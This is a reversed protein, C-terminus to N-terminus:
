SSDFVIGSPITVAEKAEIGNTTFHSRGTCIAQPYNGVLLVRLQMNFESQLLDLLANVTERHTVKTDGEMQGLIELLLRREKYYTLISYFAILVFLGISGLLFLLFIRPFFAAEFSSMMLFMLVFLVTSILLAIIELKPYSSRTRWARDIEEKPWPLRGRLKIIATRILAPMFLSMIGLAAYESPIDSDTIEGFDTVGQAKQDYHSILMTLSKRTLGCFRTSKRTKLYNYTGFLLLPFGIIMCGIPLVLIFTLLEFETFMFYMLVGMLVLLGGLVMFLMVKSTEEYAERDRNAVKRAFESHGRRELGERWDESILPKTDPESYGEESPAMIPTVQNQLVGDECTAGIFKLGREVIEYTKLRESALTRDSTSLVAALSLVIIAIGGWILYSPVLRLTSGAIIGLLSLLSLSFIARDRNVRARFEKNSLLFSNYQSVSPSAFRGKDYRSTQQHILGSIIPLMIVAVFLFVGVFIRMMFFAVTLFASIVSIILFAVIVNRNRKELKGFQGNVAELLQQSYRIDSSSLASEM